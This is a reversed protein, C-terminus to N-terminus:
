KVPATLSFLVMEHTCLQEMLTHLKFFVLERYQGILRGAPTKRLVRALYRIPQSLGSVVVLRYGPLLNYEQPLSQDQLRINTTYYTQLIGIFDDDNGVAVVVM